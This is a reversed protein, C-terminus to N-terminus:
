LPDVASAGDLIDPGRVLGDLLALLGEDVQSVVQSALSRISVPSAHAAAGQLVELLVLSQDFIAVPGQEGGSGDM